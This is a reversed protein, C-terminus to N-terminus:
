VNHARLSFSFGFLIIWAIAVIIVADTVAMDGPTGKSGATKPGIPERSISLSPRGTPAENEMAM